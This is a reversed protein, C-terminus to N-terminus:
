ILLACKKFIHELFEEAACFYRKYSSSNMRELDINETQFSYRRKWFFIKTLLLNLPLKKLSWVIIKQELNQKQTHVNTFCSDLIVFFFFFIEFIRLKKRIKSIQFFGNSKISSFDLYTHDFYPATWTTTLNTEFPRWKGPTLMGAAIKANWPLRFDLYVERM